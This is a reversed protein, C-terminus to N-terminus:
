LGDNEGKKSKTYRLRDNARYRASVLSHLQAPPRAPMPDGHAPPPLVPVDLAIQANPGSQGQEVERQHWRARLRQFFPLELHAVSCGAAEMAAIPNALFRQANVPDSSIWRLLPEEIQTLAQVVEPTLSSSFPRSGCGAQETLDILEGTGFSVTVRPETTHSADQQKDPTDTCAKHADLHIKNSSLM